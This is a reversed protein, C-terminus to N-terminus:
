PTVPDTLDLRGNDVRMPYSPKPHPLAIIRRPQIVVAQCYEPIDFLKTYQM